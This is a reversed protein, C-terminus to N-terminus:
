CRLEYFEVIESGEVENSIFKDNFSGFQNESIKITAPYSALYSSLVVNCSPCLSSGAIQQVSLNKTEPNEWDIVFLEGCNTCTVLSNNSWGSKLPIFVKHNYVGLAVNEYKILCRIKKKTM